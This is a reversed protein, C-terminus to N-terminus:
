KSATVTTREVYQIVRKKDPPVSVTKSSGDPWRFIVDITRAPADKGPPGPEGALGRPGPEGRMPIPQPPPPAADPQKEDPKKAELAAVRDELAKLRKTLEVVIASTERDPFSGDRPTKDPLVIPKNPQPKWDKPPHVKGCKPCVECKGDPCDAAMAKAAAPVTEM